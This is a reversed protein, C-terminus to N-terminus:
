YDFFYEMPKDFVRAIEPLTELAPKRKGSLWFDIQQRTIGIERAVGSKNLTPQGLLEQLRKKSFRAVENAKRLWLFM